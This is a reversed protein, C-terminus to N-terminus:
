LGLFSLPLVRMSPTEEAASLNEVADALADIMDDHATYETGSFEMIQALAEDDDANFAIKGFNIEPIIADIRADKNKSRNKNIIVLPRNSLQPNKAILEKLKIVDAGSYVQKEISLIEIDTYQELLSIVTNIYEDFEMKGILAKRCYKIDDEGQSLVCFASYDSKRKATSAPDVSLITKTFSQQEIEDSAMASLSKIRKEGLSNIDCQREQKFSVPDAAWECFLAFRDYNDWLIPYGKCMAKEHKIYYNEADFLANRNKGSNKIMEKCKAWYKNHNFYYDIDDLLICRETRRIWLSSHLLTDYVDGKRQITGVAITHNNNNQLAKLLGNNLRAVMDSCGKETAIQKEDQFDDLLLLNIRNGRYNIGRISSTSSVSQIKTRKPKVDLEIESANYRLSKNIVKGFCSDIYQNDEIQSKITEIFDQATKDIASAIVTFISHRYLACWVAIPTTIASTKAFGRPFVYCHRTHNRHLIADQMEDWIEYHTKSLPVLGADYDFLLNHLFLECFYALNEKGLSWALGHYAFVNAGADQFIQVGKDMGYLRILHKLTIDTAEQNSLNNM